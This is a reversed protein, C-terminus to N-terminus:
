DHFYSRRYLAKAGLAFHDAALADQPHEAFVGPVLLALSLSAPTQSHGSNSSNIQRSALPGVYGQRINIAYATGRGHFDQIRGPHVPSAANIIQGRVLDIINTLFNLLVVFHFAVQAPFHSGADLAKHIYATVPAYTM